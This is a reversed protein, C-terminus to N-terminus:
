IHNWNRRQLIDIIAAKSVHFMQGIQSASFQNQLERIKLVNQETLKSRPHLSGKFNRRNEIIMHRMNQTHTGLFLHDPRICSPNNCEHCVELELPDIKYHIWYSIRDAIYNNGDIGIRGYGNKKSHCGIWVWCYDTKLVKDWFRWIVAPTILPMPLRIM